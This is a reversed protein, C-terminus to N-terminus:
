IIRFANATGVYGGSSPVIVTFKTGVKGKIHKSFKGKKNTKVSFWKHLKHHKILKFVIKLKKKAPSVNGRMHLGKHHIALKRAVPEAVSTSTSGRYTASSTSGGRYVLQYRTSINPTVDFSIYGSATDSAITTWASAGYPLAQLDVTGDYVSSGTSDKVAGVLYGGTGYTLPTGNGVALTTTTSVTPAAESPAAGLAVATPAALLALAIARALTTRVNM